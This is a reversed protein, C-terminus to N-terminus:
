EEKLYIESIPIEPPPQIHQKYPLFVIKKFIKIYNLNIWSVSM